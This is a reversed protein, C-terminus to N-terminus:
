AQPPTASSLEGSFAWWQEITWVAISSRDTPMRSWVEEGGAAVRHGAVAAGRVAGHQLRQQGTAAWAGTTTRQVRLDRMRGATAPAVFGTDDCLAGFTHLRRNEGDGLDLVFVDDQRELTPIAAGERHTPRTRNTDGPTM